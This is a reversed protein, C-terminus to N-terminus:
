HTPHYCTCSFFNTAPLQELKFVSPTEQVFLLLSSIPLNKSSYVLLGTIESIAALGLSVNHGIVGPKYIM